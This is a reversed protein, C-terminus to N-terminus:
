KKRQKQGAGIDSIAGLDTINGETRALKQKRAFKKDRPRHRQYDDDSDDNRDVIKV